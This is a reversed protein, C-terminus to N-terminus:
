DVGNAGHQNQELNTDHTTSNNNLIDQRIMQVLKGGYYGFENIKLPTYVLDSFADILELYTKGKSKAYENLTDIEAQTLENTM